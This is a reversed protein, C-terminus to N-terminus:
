RLYYDRQSKSIEEKVDSQIKAQMTSLKLERSLLDNVKRLRDLPDTIELLIQADEIKLKLNSAVLDALKGPEEISQLIAVIDGTIEGRITMIKETHEQVNRMLAEIEMGIDEVEHEPVLEVKVRYLARKRLYSIITAKALGQVLVKMRGDPLKLMRLVRSITGTHFIEETTPNEIAPDKQTALFLFGEKSVAEQVARVSRERGVFLPLLMDTFIVVDRVPMLPLISPLELEKEDDEIINILDDKDAEAM